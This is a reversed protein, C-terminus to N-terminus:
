VLEFQLIILGWHGSTLGPDTVAEGLSRLAAAEGPSTSMATEVLLCCAGVRLRHTLAEYRRGVPGIRGPWLLSAWAEDDPLQVFVDSSEILSSILQGGM